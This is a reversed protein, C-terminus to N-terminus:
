MWIVTSETSELRPQPATSATSTSARKRLSRRGVRTTAKLMGMLRINATTSIYKEPTVRLMILREPRARPTPMSTSLEMTTTSFM